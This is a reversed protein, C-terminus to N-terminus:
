DKKVYKSKVLHKFLVFGSSGNKTKIRVWSTKPVLGTLRVKSYKKLTSIIGFHLSPGKRVHLFESTTQYIFESDGNEPLAIVKIEELRAKELNYREVLLARLEGAYGFWKESVKDDWAEAMEGRVKTADAIINLATRGEDTMAQLDHMISTQFDVLNLKVAKMTALKKIGILHKKM